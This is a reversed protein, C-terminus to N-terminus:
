TKVMRRATSSRAFEAALAWRSACAHDSKNRRTPFSKEVTATRYLNEVKEMKCAKRHLLMPMM